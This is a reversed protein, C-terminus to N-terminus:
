QVVLSIIIDVLRRLDHAEGRVRSCAQVLFLSLSSLPLSLIICVGATLLLIMLTLLILVIINLKFLSYVFAPLRQM